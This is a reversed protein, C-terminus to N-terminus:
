APCPELTALRDALAHAAADPMLLSADFTLHATERYLPERQAQLAALTAAPDATQLLPRRTDERLRALQIAPDVTLYVVTAAARMAARNGADLVAGGGTAIVAPAGDLATALAQAERRRFGAEGEQAFIAAITQGADAEIRADLDVFPRALHAALLRGLTTKGAGMPGILLIHPRARM